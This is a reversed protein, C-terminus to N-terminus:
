QSFLRWNTFSILIYHKQAIHKMILFASFIIIVALLFSKLVSKFDLQLGINNLFEKDWILYGIFIILGSGISSYWWGGFCDYSFLGYSLGLLPFLIRRKLKIIMNASKKLIRVLPLNLFM